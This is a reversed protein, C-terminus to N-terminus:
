EFRDAFTVAEVRIWSATSLARRRRSYGHQLLGSRQRRRRAWEDLVRLLTTLRPRQRGKRGDESRRRRPRSFLARRQVIRPRLAHRRQGRLDVVQFFGALVSGSQLELLAKSIERAKSTLFFSLSKKKQKNLVRLFTTPLSEIQCFAGTNKKPIFIKMQRSPGGKYAFVPNCVKRKKVNCLVHYGQYSM